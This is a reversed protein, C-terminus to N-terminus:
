SNLPVTRKGNIRAIVGTILTIIVFPVIWGLGVDYFLLVNDYFDLISELWGFYEIELSDCLAKLGDIISILFTCIMVAVYVFRAHYFLPSLFALLILVIALPYLLMLVPVSYTIINSLGFNAIVCTFVSFIIVFAKYSFSPILTHFYEACATTLGISTTLCALIIVIALLIAGFSGFYHESAASLVPGGNEMIGFLDVSTAGLYGIGAYIIGLFFIAIAGSKATAALIGKKSTVGMSRVANIVIIGFVLSALADMTNYGETFGTMFANDIYSGQPTSFEGMPKFIVFVLLILLGILIGPSLYKGVNDVIKSPNLSLWLTLGFFVVTFILLGIQTYESNVFPMIGIEYSVAGTRPLAFFPGITLYLLSTFIVAFTPHVRSSLEQLNKSGSFGMALTGLFPLGIGTILFGIIAFWLSTGANQGLSAPFILNGAGFFLAFLMVGIVLYSSFSLKNDM